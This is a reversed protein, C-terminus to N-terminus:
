AGPLERVEDPEADMFRRYFEQRSLGSADRYAYIERRTRVDPPVRWRVNSSWVAGTVGAVAEAVMTRHWWFMPEPLADVAFWDVAIVEGPSTRAEGGVMAGAFVAIHGNRSPQSWLGVLRTVRVRIGTEEEVERAAAEAASEGDDAGGGPLCWVEFDERQTLLVDRGRLVVCCAGLSAM